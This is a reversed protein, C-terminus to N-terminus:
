GPLQERVADLEARIDDPVEAGTWGAEDVVVRGDYAFQRNGGLDDVLAIRMITEGVMEPYGSLDLGAIRRALDDDIGVAPGTSDPGVTCAYGARVRDPQSPILTRSGHECAEPGMPAVDDSEARQDAWAGTLQDLYEQSGLRMTQDDAPGTVLLRCGYLEGRVPIRDGDAYEFVAVYTMGMEATCMLSALDPQELDNFTAVASAVAAEDTLPESPFAVTTLETGDPCLWVRAADDPLEDVAPLDADSVDHIPAYPACVEEATTVPLAPAPAPEAPVVPEGTRDLVSIGLPVALAVVIGLAVASGAMRRRRHKSRARDAWGDVSPAEPAERRFEERLESM